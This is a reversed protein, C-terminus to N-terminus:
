SLPRLNNPHEILSYDSLVSHLQAQKGLTRQFWVLNNQDKFKIYNREQQM